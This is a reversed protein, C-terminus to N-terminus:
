RHQIDCTADGEKRQGLIAAIAYDSADCMLEFPLTWDPASIIPASTLADKLTM